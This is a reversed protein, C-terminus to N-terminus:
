RHLMDPAQNLLTYYKRVRERGAPLPRPKEIVMAKTLELREASRSCLLSQEVARCSAVDGGAVTDVELQSFEM